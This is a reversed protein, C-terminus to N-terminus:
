YARLLAAAIGAVVAVVAAVAPVGNLAATSGGRLLQCCSHSSDCSATYPRACLSPVANAMKHLGSCRAASSIATLALCASTLCYCAILESLQNRQEAQHRRQGEIEIQPAARSDTRLVQVTSVFTNTVFYKGRNFLKGAETSILNRHERQHKQQQICLHILTGRSVPEVV